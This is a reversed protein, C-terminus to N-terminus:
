GGSFLHFLQLKEGGQLPHDLPVKEGDVVAMCARQDFLSSAQRERLAEIAGAVDTGEPLTLDLVGDPDHVAARLLGHVQVLVQIM